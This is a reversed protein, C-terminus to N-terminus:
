LIPLQADHRDRILTPDLNTNFAIPDGGEGQFNVTQDANAFSSMSILGPNQPLFTLAEKGYQDVARATEEAGLYYFNEAQQEVERTRTIGKYKGGAKISGNWKGGLVFPLELNLTAQRTRETVGSQTLLASQLITEEIDPQAEALYTNPNADPNLGDIFPDGNDSFLMQFDYPTRGQSRSNSVTWDLAVPGLSHNGTLSLFTLDLSNEIGNGLFRIAQDSPRYEEQMIFQDRTTRSYLGFFAFQSRGLDYDLGLSTNYRRRIEDRNQLRLQNGLIETIGTSDNTPGQRWSQTVIDGSRNFREAGGQFVVGLRDQFVRKSVQLVGKYDRPDMQLNNYGGLAKALLKFKKPAKRLKLNVTGGVAEADMDPLPSKFVEIGDLLEPAILSLDVSRDTGSNSPLNVGNITIAAFKPALGRIVVKQGEGGSRNIAVGPLRAIAEAANVDPLEQIRDASVVNAIADLGLQQNIAQLQGFAQATIVVAEGQLAEPKMEITIEAVEGAELIVPIKQEAYSLFNVRLTHTGAPIGNLVFQGNVDALAGIRLSEIYLSAGLLPAQTETDVILGKIVGKQAFSVNLSIAGVLLVMIYARWGFEKNSKIM